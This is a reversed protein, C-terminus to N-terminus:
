LWLKFIIYFIYSGFCFTILFSFVLALVSNYDSDVDVRNIRSFPLKHPRVNYIFQQLLSNELDIYSYGSSSDIYKGLSILLCKYEKHKDFYTKILTSKGAGFVGTIAINRNKYENSDKYKLNLVEDLIGTYKEDFYEDSIFNSPALSKYKEDYSNGVLTNNEEKFLENIFKNVSKYLNCNKFMTLLDDIIDIFLNSISKRNRM